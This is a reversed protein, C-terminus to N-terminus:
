FYTLLPERYDRSFSVKYSPDGTALVQESDVAYEPAKTETEGMASLFDLRVEKLLDQLRIETEFPSGLPTTPESTTTVAEVKASEELRKKFDGDAAVLKLNKPFPRLHFVQGRKRQGIDPTLWGVRLMRRIQEYVFRRVEGLQFDLGELRKAYANRLERTTFQSYGEEQLLKYPQRDFVFSALKM